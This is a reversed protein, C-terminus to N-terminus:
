KNTRFVIAAFLPFCKVNYLKKKNIVHSLKRLISHSCQEIKLLLNIGITNKKGAIFYAPSILSQNHYMALGFTFAVVIAFLM